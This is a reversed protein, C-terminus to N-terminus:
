SARRCDYDNKWSEASSELGVPAPVRFLFTSGKGPESEVWITGRYREVIRRCIALGMGTGSYEADTHLRKFIGFIQEHYERPIGIGNDKISYVCYGDRAASGIRIEPVGDSHYKLANEILNQFLQQLHVKRMRVPLIQDCIIRARSQRIRERLNSLTTELAGNADIPDHMADVISSAETYALLDDVLAEMRKAGSKMFELFQRPQEDLSGSYDHELLESYIAINRIPERLDHSASHAFQELDANVQALNEQRHRMEYQRLRARLAARLSSLITDPRVPRELFTVNGLAQLEGTRRSTKPSPRGGFTMVVFPFDSWPPQSAIWESVEALVPASLAEESIVAAAAGERLMAVFQSAMPCIAPILGGTSLTAAILNADRGVPALVLIRTEEQTRRYM